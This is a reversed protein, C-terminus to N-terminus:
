PEQRETDTENEDKTGSVAMVLWSPALSEIMEPPTDEVGTDDLQQHVLGDLAAFLESVNEDPASTEGDTLQDRSVAWLVALRTASEDEVTVKAPATPTETRKATAGWREPNVAFVVALCLAAGATMWGAASLWRADRKTTALPEAAEAGATLAVTQALQLATAVAERAQQSEALLQEFAATEDTTMESAVYRFADWNLDGTNNTDAM